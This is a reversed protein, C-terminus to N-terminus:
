AETNISKGDHCVDGASSAAHQTKMKLGFTIIAKVAQTVNLPVDQKELVEQCELALEKPLTIRLASRDVTM